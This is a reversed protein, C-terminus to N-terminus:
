TAMFGMTGVLIFHTATKNTCSGTLPDPIAEAVGSMPGTHGETARGYFFLTGGVTFFKFTFTIPQGAFTVVGTGAGSSLGCYGTVAGTAGIACPGPNVGNAKPPKNVTLKPGVCVVTAVGFTRSNGSSVTVNPTVPVDPEKPKTTVSVTPVCDGTTGIPTCPYGLGGGGIFADGVYAVSGFSTANAGPAGVGVFALVTTLLVAARALAIKM